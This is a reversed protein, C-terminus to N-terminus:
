FGLVNEHHKAYIKKTKSQNDSLLFCNSQKENQKPSNPTIITWKRAQEELLLSGNLISTFKLTIKKKQFFLCFYNNM